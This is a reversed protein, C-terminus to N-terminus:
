DRRWAVARWGSRLRRLMTGYCARCLSGEGDPAALPQADYHGIGIFVECERCKLTAKYESVDLAFSRMLPM